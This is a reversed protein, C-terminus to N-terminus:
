YQIVNLFKFEDEGHDLYHFVEMIEISNGCIPGQFHDQDKSRSSLHQLNGGM